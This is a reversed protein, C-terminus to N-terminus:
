TKKLLTYNTYDGRFRHYSKDVKSDNHKRGERGDPIKNKQKEGKQNPAKSVSDKPKSVKPQGGHVFYGGMAIEGEEALAYGGAMDMM